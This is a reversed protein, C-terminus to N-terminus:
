FVWSNDFVQHKVIYVAYFIQILSFRWELNMFRRRKQTNDGIKTHRGEVSGLLTTLFYLNGFLSLTAGVTGRVAHSKRELMRAPYRYLSRIWGM